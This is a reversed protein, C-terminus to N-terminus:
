FTFIFFYDRICPEIIDTISFLNIDPKNVINNVNVVIFVDALCVIPRGHVLHM